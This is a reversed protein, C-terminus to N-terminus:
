IFHESSGVVQTLLYYEVLYIEFFPFLWILFSNFFFFNIVRDGKKYAVWFEQIKWSIKVGEQGNYHQLCQIEWIKMIKMQQKKKMLGTQSSCNTFPVPLINVKITEICKIGSPIRSSENSTCDSYVEMWMIITFFRHSVKEWHDLASFKLNVWQLKPM